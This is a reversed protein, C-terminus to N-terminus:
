LPKALVNLKDGTGGGWIVRYNDGPTNLSAIGAGRLVVTYSGAPLVLEASPNLKFSGNMSDSPRNAFTLGDSMYSSSTDIGSAAAAATFWILAAIARNKGDTITGGSANQIDASLTSSIYVVSRQQLTFSTTLLDGTRQYAGSALVNLTNSTTIADGGPQTYSGFTELAKKVTTDGNSDVYLPATTDTSFITPNNTMNLGDIRVTPSILPVGTTGINDDIISSKGSVHLKETPKDTMIGVNQQSFINQSYVLLGAALVM